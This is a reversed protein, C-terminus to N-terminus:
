RKRTYTQLGVGFVGLASLPILEPDEQAIEYIDAAIMPVFRKAVEEPVSVPKGQFDQGRLLTTILSFVPAEKSEVQRQLIDLRTTPKYGEGLEKRRGTTSSVYEGSILQGAVRLYQQFGGGIDIRTKGIKIKGFDASRPDAGVELGALKAATLITGATGAFTLLSKVAEKRVFPDANIYYLPNLLKLRSAMLKPSFFVANLIRAAPEVAGLSGRGTATNVFEAIGKLMEPNEAPNLGLREADTFLRDFMDARMKNAFGVYARETARVGIGILPIKEAWNSMYREERFQMKQGMDTFAVRGRMLKFTPRRTIEEMTAQYAKDSAFWSFQKRFSAFFQKRYRPAAFVGQRLGFSFDGLSSMITRPMNALQLGAEKLKKFFGAPTGKIVDVMETPFV